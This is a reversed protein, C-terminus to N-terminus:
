GHCNANTEGSCTVPWLFDMQRHDRRTVSDLEDAQPPAVILARSREGRRESHLRESPELVHDRRDVGHHNRDRRLGLRLERKDGRAGSLM